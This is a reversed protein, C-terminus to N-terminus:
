AQKTYQPDTSFLEPFKPTITQYFAMIEQMDAELNGSPYLLKGVGATKTKYDVYGLGIPVGAETAMAYFGTKWTTVKKRTGEPTIILVIEPYQNFLRVMEDFKGTKGTKKRDIPITISGFFLNFPFRTWEKKITFKIDIHLKAFGAIMYFMDWNSTHPAALMVCHKLNPPLKPDIKWGHLKFILLSLWKLM